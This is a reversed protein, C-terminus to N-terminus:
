TYARTYAGKQEQKQELRTPGKAGEPRSEIGKADHSGATGEAANPGALRGYSNLKATGM